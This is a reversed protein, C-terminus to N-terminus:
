FKIQRGSANIKFSFFKTRKPLIKKIKDAWEIVVITDPRNFYEKVGIGDMDAARTIRYADIHVLEKIARRRVPNERNLGASRSNRRLRFQKVPYIKMFVFTPSTIKKTIGLGTALGRVFVTKGAGLDGVLGIIEGGKFDKSFKQGFGFTEKESKSSFIM